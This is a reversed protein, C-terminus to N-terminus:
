KSQLIFVGETVGLVYSVDQIHRKGDTGIKVQLLKFNDDVPLESLGILVPTDWSSLPETLDKFAVLGSIIYTDKLIKQERIKEVTLALSEQNADKENKTSTSAAFVTYILPKKEQTYTKNKFDINNLQSDELIQFYRIMGQTAPTFKIESKNQRLREMKYEGGEM